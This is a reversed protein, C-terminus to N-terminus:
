DDRLKAGARDARKWESHDLHRLGASGFVELTLQTFFFLTHTKHLFFNRAESALELDCWPWRSWTCIETEM